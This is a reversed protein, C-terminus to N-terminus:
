EVRFLGNVGAFVSCCFGGLMGGVGLMQYVAFGPVGGAEIGFLGRESTVMALEIGVELALFAACVVVTRPADLESEDNSLTPRVLVVSSAALLTSLFSALLHVNRETAYRGYAPVPPPPPPAPPEVSMSPRGVAPPLPPQVGPDPAKPLAEMEADSAHSQGDWEVGNEDGDDFARGVMEKFNKGAERMRVSVSVSRSDMSPTRTRFNRSTTSAFSNERTRLARSSPVENAKRPWESKLPSLRDDGPEEDHNPPNAPTPFDDTPTHVTINAPPPPQQIEAPSIPDPAPKELEAKDVEEPIGEPDVAAVRRRAKGRKYLYIIIRSIRPIMREFLVQLATYIWFEVTSTDVASFFRLIKLIGLGYTASLNKLMEIERATAHGKDQDYASDYFQESQFRFLIDVANLLINLTDRLRHDHRFQSVAAVFWLQSPIVCAQLISQRKTLRGAVYFSVGILFAAARAITGLLTTKADKSTTLSKTELLAGWLRSAEPPVDIWNGLVLVLAMGVKQWARAFRALLMLAACGFAMNPLSGGVLHLGVGKWGRLAFSAMFLVQLDAFVTYFLVAVAAREFRLGAGLDREALALVAVFSAYAAIAVPLVVSSALALLWAQLSLVAGLFALHSQRPVSPPPEASVPGPSPTPTTVQAPLNPSPSSSSGVPSPSPVIPGSPYATPTPFRDEDPQAALAPPSRATMDARDALGATGEWTSGRAGGSRTGTTTGAASGTTTTTASGGTAAVRTGEWPLAGAGVIPGALGTPVGFLAVGEDARKGPVGAAEAFAGWVAPAVSALRWRGDGSPALCACAAAAYSGYALVAPPLALAGPYGAVCAATCVADLTEALTRNPALVAAPDTTPDATRHTLLTSSTLGPGDAGFFTCNLPSTCHACFLAGCATVLPTTASASTQPLQPSSYVNLTGYTCEFSGQSSAPTSTAATTSTTPLKTAPLSASRYFAIIASAIPACLDPGDGTLSASSSSGTSAIPTPYAVAFVSSAVPTAPVSLPALSVTVTVRTSSM